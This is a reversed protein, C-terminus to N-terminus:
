GRKHPRQMKQKMSEEYKAYQDVTMIKKLEKNYAERNTREEKMMAEFREKDFPPRRTSDKMEPRQGQKADPRPGQNGDPRPGKDGDPRPGPGMHPGHMPRLKDAYAKNVKLLKKAQKKDLGYKEVMQNTQKEIMESKDFKPMGGEPRGDQALVTGSVMFAMMAALVIKKM